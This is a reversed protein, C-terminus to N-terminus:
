CPIITLHPQVEEFEERTCYGCRGGGLNLMVSSGQMDWIGSDRGSASVYVPLVAPEHKRFARLLGNVTKCRKM